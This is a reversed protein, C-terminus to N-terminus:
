FHVHGGGAKAELCQLQQELTEAKKQIILSNGLISVVFGISSWPNERHLEQTAFLLATIGLRPRPSPFFLPPFSFSLCDM